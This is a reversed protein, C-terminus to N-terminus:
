SPIGHSQWLVLFATVPTICNVLFAYVFIGYFVILLKWPNSYGILTKYTKVVGVDGRAALFRYLRDIEVANVFGLRYFPIRFIPTDKDSDVTTTNYFKVGFRDFIAFRVQTLDLTKEKRLLRNHYTLTSADYESYCFKYGFFLAIIVAFVVLYILFTMLPRVNEYYGEVKFIMIEAIVGFNLLVYFFIALYMIQRVITPYTYTIRLKNM